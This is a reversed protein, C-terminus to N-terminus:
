YEIRIDDILLASDYYSDGNDWVHFTLTVPKGKSEDAINHTMTQWGTHFATNDGDAFISGPALPIWTSHDIDGTHLTFKEGNSNTVSIEFQDNYKTNVYEMPEESVFNYKYTLSKANAPVTFTQTISSNSENVAGLGTSVIAMFKGERPLLQSTLSPRVRADGAVVWNKLDEEFGGNQTGTSTDFLSVDSIDSRLRYVFHNGPITPDNNDREEYAEILTRGALMDEFFIRSRAAAYVFTVTNDFGVVASFGVDLFADALAGTEMGHCSALYVIGNSGSRTNYTTIYNPTIGFKLNGDMKIRPPNHHVDKNIADWGESIVAELWGTELWIIPIGDILSGHAMILLVGSLNIDKFFWPTVAQNEVSYGFFQPNTSNNLINYAGNAELLGNSDEALSKDEDDNCPALNTVIKSGITIAPSNARTFIAQGYNKKSTSIKINPFQLFQSRNVNRVTANGGLVGEGPEPVIYIIAGSEYEVVISTGENSLVVSKVTPEAQIAHVLLEKKEAFEAESITGSYGPIVTAIIDNLSQSANEYAQRAVRKVVQFEVVSSGRKEDNDIFARYYYKGIPRVSPMLNVVGSFVGDEAIDDGNTVNGDDLLEAILTKDNGNIEYLAVTDLEGDPDVLVRVTVNFPVEDEFAVDQSFSLDSLFMSSVVGGPTPEPTVSDEPVPEPTVSDDPVPTSPTDPVYQSSLSSGGCGSTFIVFSFVILM